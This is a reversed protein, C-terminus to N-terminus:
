SGPPTAVVIRVPIGSLSRTVTRKLVFGARRVEGDLDIPRCDLVGPFLRHGLEYARAAAGPHEARWLSGVVLRGSRRLVRACEALVRAEAQHAFLELTFSMFVADFVADRLPLAQADGRALSAPNLGGRTALRRASISLMRASLDVGVVAGQPGASVGLRVLARGTGPGIELIWEGPQPGLMDIAEDTLRAEFSAFFGDYMRSLRDYPTRVPLRAESSLRSQPM